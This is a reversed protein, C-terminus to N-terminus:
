RVQAREHAELYERLEREFEPWLDPGESPPRPTTPILPAGGGGEGEGGEGGNRIVGLRRLALCLRLAILAYGLAVAVSLAASLLAGHPRLVVVTASAIGFLAGGALAAGLAVATVSGSPTQGDKRPVV